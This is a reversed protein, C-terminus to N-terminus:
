PQEDVPDPGNASRIGYRVLKRYLTKRDFGLIRAAETRNGQTVALVRNIYRREVERMPLLDPRRDTEDAEKYSM